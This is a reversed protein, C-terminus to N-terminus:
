HLIIGDMEVEVVLGPLILRQIEVMTAAPKIGAFVEGHVLGIREWQSIDTVFIRTRIICSYDLSEKELLKGVKNLIYRMQAEGDGASVVEGADDVATTGAIFLFPGQIVARSYGVKEEWPSGSSVTKRIGKGM